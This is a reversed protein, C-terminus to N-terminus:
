QSQGIFPYSWDRLQSFEVALPCAVQNVIRSDTRYRVCTLSCGKSLLSIAPINTRHPPACVAATWPPCLADTIAGRCCSSPIRTRGDIVRPAAATQPICPESLRPVAAQLGFVDDHLRNRGFRAQGKLPARRLPARGRGNLLQLLAPFAWWAFTWRSNPPVPALNKLLRRAILAGQSHGIVAIQAAEAM